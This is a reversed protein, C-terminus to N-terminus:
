GLHVLVAVVVLAHAAVEGLGSHGLGVLEPLQQDLLAAALGSDLRDRTRRQGSRSSSYYVCAGCLQLLHLVGVFHCFRTKLCPTTAM